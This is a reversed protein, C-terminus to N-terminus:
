KNRADRNEVKKYTKQKKSGFKKKDNRHLRWRSGKIHLTFDCTNLSSLAFFQGTFTKLFGCDKIESLWSFNEALLSCEPTQRTIQRRYRQLIFTSPHCCASSFHPRFWFRFHFSLYFYIYFFCRLYLTYLRIGTYVYIRISTYVYQAISTNSYLFISMYVIWMKNPNVFM